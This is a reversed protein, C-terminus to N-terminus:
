VQKAELILGRFIIIIGAVIIGYYVTVTKSGQASLFTFLAGMVILFTGLMYFNMKRKRIVKPNNKDYMSFYTEAEEQTFQSNIIDKPLFKYSAKEEKDIFDRIKQKSSSIISKKAKKALMKYVDHDLKSLESDKSNDNQDLLHILIKDELKNYLIGQASNTIKRIDLQYYGDKKLDLEIEKLLEGKTLQDAIQEGKRIKEKYDM